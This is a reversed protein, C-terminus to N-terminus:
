RISSTPKSAPYQNGCRDIPFYRRDVELGTVEKVDPRHMVIGASVYAPMRGQKSFAWLGSSFSTRPGRPHAAFLIKERQKEPQRSVAMSRGPDIKTTSTKTEPM